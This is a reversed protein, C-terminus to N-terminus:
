EVEVGGGIARMREQMSLLGVGAQGSLSLDFGQGNDAVSLTVTDDTTTLLMQVLTAKSHRAVNALAEQAVRFLGEEVTLPLTQKGETRLNAVIDTQQTWQT